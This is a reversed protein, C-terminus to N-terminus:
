CDNQTRLSACVLFFLAGNPDYFVPRRTRDPDTTDIKVLKGGLRRVDRCAANVDEVKISPIWHADEQEQPLVRLQEAIEYGSPLSIITNRLLESDRGPIWGFLESYFEGPFDASSSLYGDVGFQRQQVPYSHRSLCIGVLAGLPDRLLCNRGVGPVEFPPRVVTGGLREVASASQDVDEVEVYAIWGDDYHQPTEAFGAGVEEQALALVFDKEGGGWAFDMAHETLFSWSALDRYFDMSRSRDGTFLDHWVFRGVKNCTM